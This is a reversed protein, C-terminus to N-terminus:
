SATSHVSDYSQPILREPSYVQPEVLPPQKLILQRLLRASAPGMCLGNRFHGFNAWLNNIDPIKGIYPIGEPSGPRLGAWQKVIPFQALEPVMELSATLISESTQPNISTNFGQHAMSSGCVIHGDSRPILYMIRNMCMTPLWNEPTKFLIMQGHVPQVPLQINLLRSWQESWAGTTLVFQDAQFSRLNQDRVAVIQGHQIDLQQIATNEFFQVNPHTKLYNQISQLLRPNRINALQPFYLAEKFGSAIHPNIQRLREYQVLECIQMPEQFQQSYSLGQRFDEQDFILMGTEHIQFDIGSVPQLKQNWEQYLAKGFQALQNVAPAYRWPYMPSLIGGGAWSASGSYPQDFIDVSCGQEILELATLLGSIGAGIIAIKM